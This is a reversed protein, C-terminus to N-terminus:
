IKTPPIILEQDVKGEKIYVEGYNSNYFGNPIDLIPWKPHIRYQFKSSNKIILKGVNDITFENLHNFTYHSFDPKTNKDAICYVIDKSNDFYLKRKVDFAYCMFSNDYYTYEKPLDKSSSVLFQNIKLKDFKTFFGKYGGFFAKKPVIDLIVQEPKLKKLDNLNKPELVILKDYNDNSEVWKLVDSFQKISTLDVIRLFNKSM